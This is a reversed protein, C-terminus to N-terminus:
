HFLVKKKALYPGKKKIQDIFSQLLNACYEDNITKEKQLYDIFIIRCADWFVSAMVMGNHAFATGMKHVAKEYGFLFKLIGVMNAPECVKIQRDDLVMKFIKNFMETPTVENPRGSRYEDQCSWRVRKYESVWYKITTFSPASERLTSDLEAKINTPSLEKLHFYQIVYRHGIKEM